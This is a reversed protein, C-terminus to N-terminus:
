KGRRGWRFGRFRIIRCIIGAAAAATAAASDRILDVVLRRLRNRCRRKGVMKSQLRSRLSQPPIRPNPAASEAGVFVEFLRVRKFALDGRRSSPTPSESSPEPPSTSFQSSAHHHPGPHPLSRRCHISKLRTHYPAIPRIIPLSSRPKFSSPIVFPYFIPFCVSM